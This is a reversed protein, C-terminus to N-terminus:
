THVRGALEAPVEAALGERSGVPLRRAAALASLLPPHLRGNSAVIGHGALTAEAGNEGTVTGGAETVLLMGGAVDWPHLGYEWYGDLRGCAVYALDLGASAVRRVGQTLLNLRCFERHNDDDRFLRDYEFGTALIADILRATASVTIPRGDLTAGAGREAAFLEDRLPDYTVAVLTRYDGGSQREQVALLVCFVPFRHAFNVTGDLPDVLWRYRGERGAHGSEEAILEHDPFRRSLEALIYEESRRDTDTVLDILTSKSQVTGGTGAYSRRLIEGAGRAVEAAALVLERTM